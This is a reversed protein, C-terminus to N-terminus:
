AFDSNNLYDFNAKLNGFPDDTREDEVFYYELGAKNRAKLISEFDVIGTGVTTQEMNEDSDKVHFLSFRGPYKDILGMPDAGGRTVWYLDAEFTVLEPQTENLMIELPVQGEKEEFEFAHNHYGLKLGASNFLEGVRNLNESVQKYTDVSQRLDEPLANRSAIM